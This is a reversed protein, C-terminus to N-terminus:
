EAETITRERRAELREIRRDCEAQAESLRGCVREIHHMVTRLQGVSDDIKSKISLDAFLGDFFHDVFADSASLRVDFEASIDVDCLETKFKGLAIQLDQMCTQASELESHKAMDVLMGGGFVDWSALGEAEDLHAMVRRAETMACSGAQMAEMLEKRRAGAEALEREVEQLESDGGRARIAEAKEALAMRYRNECGALSRKEARLASLEAKVASLEAEAADYKAAAALAEAQEKELKAGSKGIIRYFVATLTRGTLRDVDAQEDDRIYALASCKAELAEQRKRLDDMAATIHRFRAADAALQSLENM